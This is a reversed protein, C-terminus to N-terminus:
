AGFGDFQLEGARQRQVLPPMSALWPTDAGDDSDAGDRGGVGGGLSRYVPPEHGVEQPEPESGNAAFASLGFGRYVPEEFDEFDLARNFSATFGDGSRVGMEGPSAEAPWGTAAAPPSRSLMESADLLDEVPHGGTTLQRGQSSFNDRLSRVWRAHEEFALTSQSPGPQAQM